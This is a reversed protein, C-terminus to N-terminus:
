GRGRRLGLLPRRQRRSGRRRHGRRRRGRGRGLAGDRVLVRVRMEAARDAEGEGLRLHELAACAVNDAAAAVLTDAVLLLWAARRAALREVEELRDAVHQGLARNRHEGDAAGVVLAAAHQRTAAQGRMEGVLAGVPPHGALVRRQSALPLAHRALQRRMLVAAFLRLRGAPLKELADDLALRRLTARMCRRQSRCALPLAHDLHERRPALVDLEGVHHEVAAGRVLVDRTAWGM